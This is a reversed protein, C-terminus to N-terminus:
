LINPPERVPGRAREALLDAIDSVLDPCTGLGYALRDRYSLVTVDLGAWPTLPGLPYAEDVLAGCCYLPM